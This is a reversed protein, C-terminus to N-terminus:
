VLSQSKFACSQSNYIFTLRDSFFRQRPARSYRCTRPFATVNFRMHPRLLLYNKLM